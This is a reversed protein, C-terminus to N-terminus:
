GRDVTMLIAKFSKGDVRMLCTYTGSPMLEETHNNGHWHTSYRGPDLKESVIVRLEKGDADYIRIDVEASRFLGFRILSTRFFPNPHSHLLYGPENGHQRAHLGEMTELIIDFGGHLQGQEDKQLSIIRDKALPDASWPDKQNYPDGESEKDVNECKSLQGRLLPASRDDDDYQEHCRRNEPRSELM